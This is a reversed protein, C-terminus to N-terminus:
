RPVIPVPSDGPTQQSVLGRWLRSLLRSWSDRAEYFGPVKARFVDDYAPSGYVLDRTGHPPSPARSTTWPLRRVPQSSRWIRGSRARLTNTPFTSSLDPRASWGPGAGSRLGARLAGLYVPAAPYPILGLALFRPVVILQVQFVGGGGSPEMRWGGAFGRSGQWRFCLLFVGSPPVSDLLWLPVVALLGRRYWFLRFKQLRGSTGGFYRRATGYIMRCSAASSSESFRFGSASLKPSSGSWRWCRPYRANESGPPQHSIGPDPFDQVDRDGEGGSHRSASSAGPGPKM